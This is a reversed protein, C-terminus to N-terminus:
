RAGSPPAGGYAFDGGCARGDGDRGQPSAHPDQEDFVVALDRAEDPAPEHGLAKGDIDGGLTAVAEVEGGVFRVIHDDEVEHEGVDLPQLDKAADAAVPDVGRDHDEGRLVVDVIADAAEVLPGVVVQDLGEGEGLQDRADLGQEPPASRRLLAGGELHRVEAEIQGLALDDAGATRDLEGGRSNERRSYRM